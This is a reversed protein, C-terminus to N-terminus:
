QLKKLSVLSLLLQGAIRGWIAKSDGNCSIARGLIIDSGILRPLGM